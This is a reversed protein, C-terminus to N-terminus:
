EEAKPIPPLPRRGAPKSPEAQNSSAEASAVTECKGSEAKKEEKKPESAFESVKGDKDMLVEVALIRNDKVHIVIKKSDIEIRGEPVSPILDWKQKEIEKGFVQQKIISPGFLNAGIIINLRKFEKPADKETIDKLIKEVEQSGMAPAATYTPKQVPRITPESQAMEKIKQIAKRKEEPVDVATVQAPGASAGKKEEELLPSWYEQKQKAANEKQNAGASELIKQKEANTVYYLDEPKDEDKIEYKSVNFSSLFDAPEDGADVSIIKLHMGRTNTAKEQLRSAVRSSIFRKRVPSRPGKWIYIKRLDYRCLLLVRESTLEQQINQLDLSPIEEEAGDDNLQYAVFDRWEEVSM